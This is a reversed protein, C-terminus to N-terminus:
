NGVTSMHYAVVSMMWPFIAGMPYGHVFLNWIDSVPGQAGNSYVFYPETKTTNQFPGAVAMPAVLPGEVIGTAQPILALLKAAGAETILTRGPFPGGPGTIPDQTFDEATLPPTYIM